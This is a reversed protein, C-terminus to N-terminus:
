RVAQDLLQPLSAAGQVLRLAGAAALRGGDGAGTLVGIAAMGAARSAKIDPVTDGVYAIQAPPLKLGAAARLLGEPDPKRRVVDTATVVVEFAALIGADALAPLTEGHSATCLGLRLGAARLRTIAAVVGSFCRAQQRLLEPGVERTVASLRAILAQDAALEGLALPWFPLDDNLAREVQAHSIRVPLGVAAVAAEAALRYAGISDVLTGDVDFLIAALPPLEASRITTISGDSIALTPRLPLPSVLELLDAAYDAVCPTVIAAAVTGGESIVQVPRLEAACGGSAGPEIVYAPQQRVGSWCARDVASALRLNLTGPHPDIGAGAMFGARAWDLATFGAAKGLGREVRGNMVWVM